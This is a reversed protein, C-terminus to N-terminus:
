LSVSAKSYLGTCESHALSCTFLDQSCRCYACVQTNSTLLCFSLTYVHIKFCTKVHQWHRSNSHACPPWQQKFLWGAARRRPLPSQLLTEWPLLPVPTSLPPLWSTLAAISLGRYLVSAELDLEIHTLTHTQWHIRAPTHPNHAGDMSYTQVYLTRAFFSAPSLVGTSYVCNPSPHCLLLPTHFWGPGQAFGHLYSSIPWHCTKDHPFPHNPIFVCLRSICIFIIPQVIPFLFLSLHPHLSHTHSM